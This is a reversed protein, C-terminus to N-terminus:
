DKSRKIKYEWGPGHAERYGAIDQRADKRTDATSLYEWGYGNGPKRAWIEWM